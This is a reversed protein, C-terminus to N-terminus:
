ARQRDTFSYYCVTKDDMQVSIMSPYRGARPFTYKLINEPKMHGNECRKCEEQSQFREGCIDCIYIWVKKM